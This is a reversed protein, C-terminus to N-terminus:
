YKLRLYELRDNLPIFKSAANKLEKSVHDWFVVEVTYGDEVLQRVPPVFDGDGAVLVMTDKSPDANRYADRTM